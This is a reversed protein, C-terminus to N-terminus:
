TVMNFSVMLLEGTDERGHRILLREIFFVNQLRELEVVLRYFLTQPNLNGDALDGPHYCICSPFESVSKELRAKLERYTSDTYTSFIVDYKSSPPM